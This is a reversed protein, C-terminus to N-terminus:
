TPNACQEEGLKQQLELAENLTEESPKTQSTHKYWEPLKKTKADSKSALEPTKLEYFTQWGHEISQKVVNIREEDNSSLQDLKGLAIELAKYTLPKKLKIRMEIFAQLLEKLEDNSTYEDVLGELSEKKINKEKINKYKINEIKYKLCNQETKNENTGNQEIKNHKTVNQETKNQNTVTQEIKNENTKTQETKNNKRAQARKNSTDKNKDFVTKNAILLAKVYPNIDDEIIEDFAYQMFAKYAEAREEAEPLVEIAEYMTRFFIISDAM